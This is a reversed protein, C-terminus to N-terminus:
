AGESEDEGVHTWSRGASICSVVGRKVGFDAAIVQHKEGAALRQKIVRADDENILARGHRSGTNHTGHLRRDAYNEELTGWRLNGVHNNLPNGDLHRCVLGEPRPEVFTELVLVHVRIQASRGFKVWRYGGSLGPSM